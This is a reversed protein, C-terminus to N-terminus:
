HRYVLQRFESLFDMGGEVGLYDLLAPRNLVLEAFKLTKPRASQSYFSTSATWSACDSWFVAIRCIGGFRPGSASQSRSPKGRCQLGALLKFVEADRRGCPFCPGCGLFRAPFLSTKERDMMRCHVAGFRGRHMEPRWRDRHTSAHRATAAMEPGHRHATTDRVRLGVRVIRTAPAATMLRKRRLRIHSM